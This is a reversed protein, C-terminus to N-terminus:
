SVSRTVTVTSGPYELSVKRSAAAASAQDPYVGFVTSGSGSMMIRFAGTGAMCKKLQEMEVLARAAPSAELHNGMTGAITELSSGSSLAREFAATFGAPLHQDKWSVMLSSYVQAATVGIGPNALLLWTDPPLPQIRKLAVASDRREGGRAAPWGSSFFACDHGVRSALRIKEETALRTGLIRDLAEIVASADTASGGVGGSLPLNKRIVIDVSFDPPGAVRTLHDAFVMAAAHCNNRASDRGSPVGPDACAIGISFPGKGLRVGVEDCVEIAQWSMDLTFLGDSVGTIELTPNIKGRAEVWERDKVAEGGPLLAPAEPKARGRSVM